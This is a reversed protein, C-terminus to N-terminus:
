GMGLVCADDAVQEHHARGPIHCHDLSSGVTVLNANVETALEVCREFSWGAQAAAGVIKLVKSLILTVVVNHIVRISVTFM